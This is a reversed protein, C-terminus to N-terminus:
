ISRLREGIARRRQRLEPSDGVVIADLAAELGAFKRAFVSARWGIITASASSQELAAVELEAVELELADLREARTEGMNGRGARGPRRAASASATGLEDQLVRLQDVFGANPPAAAVQPRAAAVADLAAAAALRETRMLHAALVTASRSRGEMCHVLVAGGAALGEAIFASTSTFQSAIDAGPVDDVRVLFRTIGAADVLRRPAGTRHALHEPEPPADGVDQRGALEEGPVGLLHGLERGVSLVHTIGRRGGVGPQRAASLSGLWLRPRM